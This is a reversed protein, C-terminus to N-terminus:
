ARPHGMRSCACPRRRPCLQKSGGEGTRPSHDERNLGIGFGPVAPEPGHPPTEADAEQLGATDGSPARAPAQVSTGLGTSDFLALTFQAADPM